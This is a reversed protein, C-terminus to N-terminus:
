LKCFVKCFVPMNNKKHHMLTYTAKVLLEKLNTNRRQVSIVQFRDLLGQDHIITQFNNKLKNNLYEVWLLSHQILPIMEKVIRPKQLKKLWHRLFSRSFWRNRLSNFLIKVAATKIQVYFQGNFEIHSSKWYNYYDKVLRKINPYKKIKNKVALLGAKTDINTYLSDIDM